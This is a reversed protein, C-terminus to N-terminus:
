QDLRELAEEVDFDDDDDDTAKKAAPGTVTASQKLSSTSAAASPGASTAPQSTKLGSGALNSRVSDKSSGRSGVSNVSSTSRQSLFKKENEMVAELALYAKRLKYFSKIAETLSENLVGVVASMLQAEAQCVAYETGPPYIPSKYANPDKSVQRQREYASNEALSLANAATSPM